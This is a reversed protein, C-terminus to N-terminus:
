QTPNPRKKPKIPTIVFSITFIGDTIERRVWKGREARYWIVKPINKTDHYRVHASVVEHRYMKKKKTVRKM